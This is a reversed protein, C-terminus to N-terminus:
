TYKTLTTKKQDGQENNARNRKNQKSQKNQEHAYMNENIKILRPNFKM